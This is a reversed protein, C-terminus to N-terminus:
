REEFGWRRLRAVEAGVAAPGFTGGRGDPVDLVDAVAELLDGSDAGAGGRARAREDSHELLSRVASSRSPRGTPTGDSRTPAVLAERAAGPVVALRALAAAALSTAGGTGPLLAAAVHAPEVHRRGAGSAEDAAAALVAAIAGGGGDAAGGGSVRAAFRQQAAQKTVGLAGGIKAWSCGSGRAEAVFRQVIDAGLEELEAHVGLAAVLRDLPEDSAAQAEVVRGLVDSDLPLAM